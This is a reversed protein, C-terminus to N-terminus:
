QELRGATVRFASCPITEPLPVTAPDTTTIFVQMQREVLYDLLHAIRSSDLEATMDDLLLVPLSGSKRALYEIEAMKLALVFSKQQGQSGHQRIPKDNLLFVLDDRHPGVLTTCREREARCQEALASALKERVAAPEGPGELAHAHYWLRGIEDSGSIRSYFGSFLDALEAIYSDRAMILRTATEVLQENWAEMAYYSRSRLLQNRQKLVRYYDHYLRLYRADSSFIARDLYRRRQEPSGSVMILEEPSFAVVSLFSCYDILRGASKGDVSLQKNHGSFSVALDHGISGDTLTCKLTASPEGWAIIDSQRAHRFSKLTGLFFLAELYNSKGQGNAGYFLNFRNGFEVESREINRYHRISLHDLQM